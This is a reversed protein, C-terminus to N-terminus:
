ARAIAAVSPLPFPEKPIAFAPSQAFQSVWAPSIAYLLNEFVNSLAATNDRYIRLDGLYTFSPDINHLAHEGPSEHTGAFAWVVVAAHRLAILALINFRARNQPPRRTEEHLVFWIMCAHQLAILASGSQSWKYVRLSLEQSASQSKNNEYALLNLPGVVANMRLFSVHYLLHSLLAGTRDSTLQTIQDSRTFSTKWKRLAKITREYHVRLDLIRRTLCALHGKSASQYVPYKTQTELDVGIDKYVIPDSEQHLEDPAMDLNEGKLRDLIETDHCFEWVYLQLGCLVMHYDAPRLNPLAEHCDLAIRILDSFLLDHRREPVDGAGPIGGSSGVTKGMWLSDSSPLSINLEECSLLPRTNLLVTQFTEARLIAFVIRKRTESRVWEDGRENSLENHPNSSSIRTYKPLGDGFFDFKRGYGILLGGLRQADSLAKPQGLYLSTVQILSIAQCIPIAFEEEDGELESVMLYECLKRHIMLGYRAGSKGFYMSGVATLTLYLVPSVAEVDFGQQWIMPWLLHFNDFYLSVFEQLTHTLTTTPAINFALEVETSMRRWVHPALAQKPLATPFGGFTLNMLEQIVEECTRQATPAVVALCSVDSPSKPIETMTISTSPYTSTRQDWVLQNFFNAHENLNQGTESPSMWWGSQGTFPYQSNLPFNYQFVDFIGEGGYYGNNFIGEDMWTWAASSNDEIHPQTTQVWSELGSKIMADDNDGFSTPQKAPNVM